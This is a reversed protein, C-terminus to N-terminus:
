SRAESVQVKTAVRRFPYLVQAGYSRLLEIPHLSRAHPFTPDNLGTKPYRDCDSQQTGFIRDWCTLGAAYNKDGDGTEISHHVRHYQPSVILHRLPGLNTRINAHYFRAYWLRGVLYLPVTKVVDGGIVFFPLSSILRNIFVEVVHVRADTFLSLDRASHHVSHFRWFLPVRHKLFHTFWGIFDGLVFCIVFVVAFPLYETLDVSAGALPHDFVWSLGRAFWFTGFIAVPAVLLMWLMDEALGRGGTASTRHAPILRELVLIVGLAILAPVTLPLYDV